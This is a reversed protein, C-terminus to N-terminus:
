IFYWHNDLYNPYTSFCPDLRRIEMQMQTWCLVHARQGTNIENGKEYEGQSCMKDKFSNIHLAYLMISNYVYLLSIIVVTLNILMNM